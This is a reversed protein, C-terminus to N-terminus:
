EISIDDFWVKGGNNFPAALGLRIFIYTTNEPPTFNIRVETWGNTGTLTYENTLGSTGLYGRNSDLFQVLIFPPWNLNLTKIWGRLEYDQGAVFPSYSKLWNYAITDTLPHDDSIQISVSYRGSHAEETGRNFIVYNQTRAIITPYWDAEKNYQSTTNEFGGNFDYLVPEILGDESCSFM